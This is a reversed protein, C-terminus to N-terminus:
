FTNQNLYHSYFSGLCYSMLHLIKYDMEGDNKANYTRSQSVIHPSKSNRKLNKSLFTKCFNETANLPGTLSVTAHMFKSLPSSLYDNNNNGNQKELPFSVINDVIEIDRPWSRGGVGFEGKGRIGM